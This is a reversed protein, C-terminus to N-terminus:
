SSWNWPAPTTCTPASNTHYLNTPAMTLTLLLVHKKKGAIVLWMETKILIFGSVGFLINEVFFTQHINIAMSVLHTGSTSLPKGETTAETFMTFMLTFMIASDWIALSNIDGRIYSIMDVMDTCMKGSCMVMECFNNYTVSFHFVTVSVEIYTMIFAGTKKRKTM